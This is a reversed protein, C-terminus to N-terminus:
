RRQHRDKPSGPSAGDGAMAHVTHLPLNDKEYQRVTKAEFSFAGTALAKGMKTVADRAEPAVADDALLPRAALMIASGVTLAALARRAIHQNPM